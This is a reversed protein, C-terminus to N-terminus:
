IPSDEQENEYLNLNLKELFGNRYAIILVFSLHSSAFSTKPALKSLHLKRVAM